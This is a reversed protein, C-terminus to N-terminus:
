VGLGLTVSATRSTSSLTVQQAVSVGSTTISWTGYPLLVKSGGSVSTTTYSDGGPCTTSSAPTITITKGSLDLLAKNQVKVTVAGMPITASGPNVTRVDTSVQSVDSGTCSGAKVTSYVAPFLHLIQTPPGTALCAASSSPCAAVTTESLYSNGIRIPIGTPTVAGTVPSDFAYTIARETDYSLTARALKGGTTSDATISQPTTQAAQANATGVYGSQNAVTWYTGDSLGVFVACGDDGTTVTQTTTGGNLTLAVGASPQGQYDSVLVALANLSSDLAGAGIARLVDGTVPKVSGMNPWTIAVRVLKYALRDSSQGKCANGPQSSTLFNANTTITYVIDGVKQTTVSKGSPIELASQARAKELVMDVLDAATTRRLNSGTVQTAGVFIRLAAAVGVAFVAMAIVVELLTM